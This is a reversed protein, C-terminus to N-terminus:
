GSIGSTTLEHNHSLNECVVDPQNVAARRINEAAVTDAEGAFSCSVCTFRDRTPRNHKDVHGCEPCTRSTNRPDVVRTPVGYLKAKYEIFQRLQAFSWSHVTRRQSKRATVRARIGKLDELSIGRRTDQAKRVIEKSTRHNINRTM